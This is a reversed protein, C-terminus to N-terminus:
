SWWGRWTRRYNRRAGPEITVLPPMEPREQPTGLLDRMAAVGRFGAAAALQVFSGRAAAEREADTDPAPVTPTGNLGEVRNGPMANLNVMTGDPTERMPYLGNVDAYTEQNAKRRAEIEVHQARLSLFLRYGVYVLVALFAVLAVALLFWFLVSLWGSAQMPARYPKPNDFKRLQTLGLTALILVIGLSILFLPWSEVCGQKQGQMIVKIEPEEPKGM